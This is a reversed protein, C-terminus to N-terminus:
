SKRVSAMIDAIQQEAADARALAIDAKSPDLGQNVMGVPSPIYTRVPEQLKGDATKTTEVTNPQQPQNNYQGNLTQKILNSDPLHNPDKDATQPQNQPQNM